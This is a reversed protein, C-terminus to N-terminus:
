SAGRSFGLEARWYSDPSVLLHNLPSLKLNPFLSAISVRTALVKSPNVFLAHLVCVRVDPTVFAIFNWTSRSCSLLQFLNQSTAERREASPCVAQEAVCGVRLVRNLISKESGIGV